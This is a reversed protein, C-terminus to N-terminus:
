SCVLLHADVPVQAVAEAWRIVDVADVLGPVEVVVDDGDAGMEGGGVFVGTAELELRGAALRKLEFPRRKPAREDVAEM